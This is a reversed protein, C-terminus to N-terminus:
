KDLAQVSSFAAEEIKQRRRMRVYSEAAVKRKFTVAAIESLADDVEDRLLPGGRAPAKLDWPLLIEINRRFQRSIM